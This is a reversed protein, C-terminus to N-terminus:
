ADIDFGEFLNEAVESIADLNSEILSDFKDTAWIELRDNVGIITCEKKIEAYNTLTSPINIRGQKDFECVTAGSMFFRNFTRADKKTFPLSKLKSVINEWENMSYVFLCGDLGRTVVFSDGIEERFKSPIILRNKEDLNHHYEGILMDYGGSEEM